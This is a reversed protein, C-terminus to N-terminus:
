SWILAFSCLVNMDSNSQETCERNHFHVTHVPNTIEVIKACLCFLEKMLFVM